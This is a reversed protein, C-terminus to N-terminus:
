SGKSDKDYSKSNDTTTTTPSPAPAVKTEITQEQHYKLMIASHIAYLALCIGFVITFSTLAVYLTTWPWYRRKNIYCDWADANICVPIKGHYDSISISTKPIVLINDSLLRPITAVMTTNQVDFSITDYKNKYNNIETVENPLLRNMRHIIKVRDSLEMLPVIIGSEIFKGGLGIGLIIATDIMWDRYTDFIISLVCVILTLVLYPIVSKPKITALFDKLSFM